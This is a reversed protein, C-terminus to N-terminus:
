PKKMKSVEVTVADAMLAATALAPIASASLGQLRDSKLTVTALAPGTSVSLGDVRWVGAIPKFVIVFSIQVPRTRFVGALRLTGDETVSPPQTFAPSLVLIPSLDLRQDRLNTFEIGLQAPSNRMQMDPTGLGHLVTYNGTFNAQYLAGLTTRVLILLVDTPLSPAAPAGTNPQVRAPGLAAVASGRPMTADDSHLASSFAGLVLCVTTFLSALRGKRLGSAVDPFRLLAQGVPLRKKLAIPM